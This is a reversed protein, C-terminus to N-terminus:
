KFSFFSYLLLREAFKSFPKKITKYMCKRELSIRLVKIFKTCLTKKTVKECIFTGCIGLLFFFLLM